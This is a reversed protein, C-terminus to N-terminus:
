GAMQRYVALTEQAVREWSFCAAQELGRERLDARLDPSALARRLSGAIAETDTPDFLIAADGVVEPLSSTKSCAVPAGCAMAELVPLGFGEYESPFVFLTAGSYLAPLDDEAALGVFIVSDQLGLQAVTERTQSYREDWHGALVLRCDAVQSRRDLTGWAEVLRVLNKHPKNSGLYLVYREPLAYKQRLTAIQTPPRPTFHADAALPTIVIRESAVRFYCMLDAKTAQSIALVVSATQLALIHALRYILHQTVSFYQPYVLPIFDYCTLVTPVGPCYPMLYYPSHYLTAQARHLLGPVIWQQRISFPSIPCAVRALSPLTLRTAAASPDHLLSISLDPAIQALSRSLNVVYRGIGPFHDTATRADIVYSNAAPM